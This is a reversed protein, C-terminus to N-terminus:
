SNVERSSLDLIKCWRVSSRSNRTLKRGLSSYNKFKHALTASGPRPNPIESLFIIGRFVSNVSCTTIDSPIGNRLVSIYAFERFERGFRKFFFHKGEREIDPRWYRVLPIDKWQVVPKLPVTRGSQIQM